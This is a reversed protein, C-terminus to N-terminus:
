PRVRIGGTGPGPSPTRTLALFLAGTIGYGASLLLDTTGLHLEPRGPGHPVWWPVYSWFVLLTALAAARHGRTWLLLVLPVCWVWHHSWSVPSVLLATVACACVAWARRGRLEARVAVTLGLVGLVAAGATWLAAPDPTHLLRALIGRLAQNATDEATGVRSARFVM